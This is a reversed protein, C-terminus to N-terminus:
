CLSCTVACNLKSRGQSYVFGLELGPLSVEPMAEASGFQEIHDLFLDVPDGPGGLRRDM